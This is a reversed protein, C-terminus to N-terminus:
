SIKRGNSTVSELENIESDLIVAAIDLEEIAKNIVQQFHGAAPHNREVLVLNNVMDELELYMKRLEKGEKINRLRIFRLICEEEEKFINKFMIGVNYSGTDRKEPPDIRTVEAFCELEKKIMKRSKDYFPLGLRVKLKTKPAIFLSTSCFAGSCSIDKMESVIHFNDGDLEVPLDAKFRSYTRKEIGSYLKKM